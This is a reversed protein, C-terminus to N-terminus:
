SLTLMAAALPALSEIVYRHHHGRAYARGGFSARSLDATM